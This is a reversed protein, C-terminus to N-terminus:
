RVELQPYRKLMKSIGSRTMGHMRAIEAASTGNRWQRFIEAVQEDTLKRKAQRIKEKQEDTIVVKLEGAAYRRKLTASIQERPIHRAAAAARINALATGTRKIGRSRWGNGLNAKCIKERTEPSLVRGRLGESIRQRHYDSFHAHVAQHQEHTLVELNSPRDNLRQRDRHHVRRNGDKLWGMAWAVYRCRYLQGNSWSYPCEPAYIVAYGHHNVHFAMVAVVEEFWLDGTDYM